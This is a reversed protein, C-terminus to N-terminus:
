GFRNAVLWSAIWVVAGIAMLSAAADPYDGQRWDDVLSQLLISAIGAALLGVGMVFPVALITPLRGIHLYGPWFPLWATLPVLVLLGGVSVLVVSLSRPNRQQDPDRLQVLLAAALMPVGPFLLVFAAVRLAITLHGSMAVVGAVGLVLLIGGAGLLFTAGLPSRPLRMILHYPM